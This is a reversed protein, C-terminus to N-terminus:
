VHARGIQEVVARGASSFRQAPKRDLCRLFWADFAPPFELSARESRLRESPALLPLSLIEAFLAPMSADPRSAAPWYRRATLCFYAILGLAWIDTQPSVAEGAAQEYAMYLPTGRVEQSVGTADGLVKAIGFDLIKVGYSGDARETLFLNEPKLDRHVIPHAAGSANRYGHAADLGAAVQGLIELTADVSLPGKANILAGLTHGRLLEMVLFPARSEVDFGADLVKVIHEDNVRAAIRAELEFRERASALQVIHPWLLKLAVRAETATHEAEYVAGMGGDAVHRIIRYRGAFLQQAQLM